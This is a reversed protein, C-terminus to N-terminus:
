GVELGNKTKVLYLVTEGVQKNKNLEKAMKRFEKILEKM